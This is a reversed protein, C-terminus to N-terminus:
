EESMPPTLLMLLILSMLVPVLQRPDQASAGSKQMAAPNEDASFPIPCVFLSSYHAHSNLNTGSYFPSGGVGM